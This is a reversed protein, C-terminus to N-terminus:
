PYLECPNMWDEAGRQDLIVPMRDQKTRDPSESEDHHYHLNAALLATRSDRSTFSAAVTTVANALTLDAYARLTQCTQNSTAPSM